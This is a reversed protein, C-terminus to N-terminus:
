LWIMLLMDMIYLLFHQAQTLLVNPVGHEYFSRLREGLAGLFEFLQFFEVFLAFVFCGGLGFRFFLTLM